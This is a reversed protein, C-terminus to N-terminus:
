PKDNYGDCDGSLMRGNAARRKVLGGQGQKKAEEVRWSSMAQAAGAADGKKMRRGPQSNKFGNESTNYALDAM